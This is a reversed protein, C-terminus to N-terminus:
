KKGFVLLYFGILPTIILLVYFWYIYIYYISKYCNVKFCNLEFHKAHLSRFKNYDLTKHNDFNRLIANYKKTIKENFNYENTTTLNTKKIYIKVKRNLEAIELACTHHQIARVKYDNAVEIQSFLLVLISIVTSGFALLNPDLKESEFINYVSLLSLIILYCTLVGVTINSIRAKMMLRTHATFRAGKTTWLDDDLKQLYRREKVM